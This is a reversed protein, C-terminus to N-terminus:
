YQPGPTIPKTYDRELIATIREIIDKQGGRNDLAVLLIHEDDIRITARKVNDYVAIVYRGKGLYEDVNNRSNWSEVARKISSDMEKPPLFNSIGQKTKSNIKTGNMDSIVAFRVYPDCDMVKELLKQYNM